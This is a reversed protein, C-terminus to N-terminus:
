EEATHEVTSEESYRRLIGEYTPNYAFIGYLRGTETYVLDESHVLLNMMFDM